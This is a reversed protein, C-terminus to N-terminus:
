TGTDQQHLCKEVSQETRTDDTEAPALRLELQHLDLIQEHLCYACHDLKIITTDVKRPLKDHMVPYYTDYEWHTFKGYHYREYKTLTRGYTPAEYVRGCSCNHITWFCVVEVADRSNAVPLLDDLRIIKAKAPPTPLFDDLSIKTPM